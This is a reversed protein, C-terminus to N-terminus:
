KAVLYVLYVLACEIVPSAVRIGAYDHLFPKSSGEWLRFFLHKIGPFLSDPTSHFSEYGNIFNHVCSLVSLPRVLLAGRIVSFIGIVFSISPHARLKTYEGPDLAVVEKDEFNIVVNSRNYDNFVIVLGDSSSTSQHLGGLWAGFHWYLAPDKYKLFLNRVSEGKILEMSLTNKEKDYGNVSLPRYEWKKTNKNSYTKNIKQLLRYDAVANGSKYYRKFVVGKHSHFIAKNTKWIKRNTEKIDM